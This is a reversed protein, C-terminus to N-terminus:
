RLHTKRRKNWLLEWLLIQRTKGKVAKLFAKIASFFLTQDQIPLLASPYSSCSGRPEEGATLFPRYNMKFTELQVSSRTLKMDTSGKFLDDKCVGDAESHEGGQKRVPWTNKKGAAQQTRCSIVHPHACQKLEKGISCIVRKTKSKRSGDHRTPM